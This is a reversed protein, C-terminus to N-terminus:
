GLEVPSVRVRLLLVSLTGTLVSEAGSEAVHGYERVILDLVITLTSGVVNTLVGTEDWLRVMGALWSANRILYLREMSVVVISLAYTANGLITFLFMGPALGECRTKM